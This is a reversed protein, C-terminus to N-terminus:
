SPESSSSTATSASINLQNITQILFPGQDEENCAVLELEANMLNFLKERIITPLATMFKNVVINLLFKNLYETICPISFKELLGVIQNVKAENGETSFMFFRCIEFNTITVEICVFASQTYGISVSSKVGMSELRECISKCLNNAIKEVIGKELLAVAARKALARIIVKNKPIKSRVINRIAEKRDLFFINLYLKKISEKVDKGKGSNTSQLTANNGVDKRNFLCYLYVSLIVGFTIYYLDSLSIM